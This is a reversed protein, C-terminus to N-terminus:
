LHSVYITSRSISNIPISAAISNSSIRALCAYSSFLSSNRQIQTWWKVKIKRRLDLFYGIDEDVDNM